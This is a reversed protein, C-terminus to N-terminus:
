ENKLFEELKSFDRKLIEHEWLVIYRYNNNVYWQYKNQDALFRKQQLENMKEFPIGYGHWYDGNVEIIGLGPIYFDPIWVKQQLKETGNKRYYEDRLLQKQEEFAINRQQLFNRVIEEPLTRNNYFFKDYNINELYCFAKLSKKSSASKRFLFKKYDKLFEEEFSSYNESTKALNYFWEFADGKITTFCEPFRRTSLSFGKYKFYTNIQSGTLNFMKSYQRINSLYDYKVTKQFIDNEDLSNFLSQFQKLKSNFKGEQVSNIRDQSYPGIFSGKRDLGECQKSCYKRDKYNEKKRRYFFIEKGCVLCNCKEIM